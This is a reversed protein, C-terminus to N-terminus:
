HGVPRVRQFFHTGGKGANPVVGRTRQSPFYTNKMVKVAEGPLRLLQQLWNEYRLAAEQEHDRSAQLEELSKPEKMVRPVRVPGM